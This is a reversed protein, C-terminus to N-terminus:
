WGNTVDTNLYSYKSTPRSTKQIFPMAENQLTDIYWMDSNFYM